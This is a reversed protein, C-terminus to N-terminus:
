STARHARIQMAGAQAHDYARRYTAESQGKRRMAIRRGPWWGNWTWARGTAARRQAPITSSSNQSM